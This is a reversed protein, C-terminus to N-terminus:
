FLYPLLSRFRLPFLSKRGAPVALGTDHTRLPPANEHKVFALQFRFATKLNWSAQQMEICCFSVCANFRYM